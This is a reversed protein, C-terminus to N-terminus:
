RGERMKAVCIASVVGALAMYAGIYWPQNNNVALLYTAVVPTLSVFLIAGIQYVLSIGSYRVHVPFQACFIAAQPGYVPAYLVGLVLVICGVALAPVGSNLLAVAPFASAALVLSFIVYLRKPGVRDAIKSAFPITFVLVFAAASIAALITARPMGAVKVLFTLTFIAYITFIVGDIMRAGWGLFVTQPSMTLVDLIPARTVKHQSKAKEFEPSEVIRMRIFTGVALLVVSLLFAIRWGWSSFNEDSLFYSLLALVGTSACLGIALGMQPFSTYYARKDEPAYEYAMLVAGGWEGGIAFGQVIRLFLLLLPAAIGIQEYTPVCGILFTAGGMLMLTLVLLPKRGIRDGFHGFILGGIPRAIFGAAFSGYALLTSLLPDTSPFFQKNFILGAMAGYILFDYWEITTGILSAVAVKRVQAIEAQKPQVTDQM